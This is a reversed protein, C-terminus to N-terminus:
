MNNQVQIVLHILIFNFSTVNSNDLMIKHQTSNLIVQSILIPGSTLNNHAHLDELQDQKLVFESECIQNM